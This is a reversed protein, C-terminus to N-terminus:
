RVAAKPTRKALRAAPPAPSLGNRVLVQANSV